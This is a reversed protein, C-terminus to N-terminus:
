ETCNHCVHQVMSVHKGCIWKRCTSCKNPTKNRKSPDCFQCNNRKRQIGQPIVVPPADRPPNNERQSKHDSLLSSAVEHIFSFRSCKTNNIDQWLVYANLMAVDLINCFVALPWRRSAMKTSFHSVMQDVTDVGCKKKNYQLIIHPKKKETTNDITDRFNGSTLLVVNKNRKPVYSVIVAEGENHFAFKSSYRERNGTSRLEKPIERRNTRITGLLTMKKQKLQRSLNLSTFFNDTVIDCGSDNFPAVLRLVVAEGLTGQRNENEKGLYPNICLVYHTEADAAMWFKIGFKSPKKPMYQLFPCRNRSPYLQEDITITDHHWYLRLISNQFETFIERIAAFKDHRFRVNRTARDDFRLLRLLLKFRQFGFTASFIPRGHIPHWLNQLPEKTGQYIARLYILGIFARMEVVNTELFNIGRVRQGERNTAIVTTQIMHDTIIAEWSQVSTHIRQIAYITPGGRQRLIDQMRARGQEPPPQTLWTDGSPSVFKGPQVQIDDPDSDSSSEDDIDEEVIVNEEREDDVDEDVGVVDDESVDDENDDSFHEILAAAEAANYLRVRRAM